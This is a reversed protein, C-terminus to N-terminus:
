HGLERTATAIQEAYSEAEVREILQQRPMFRQGTMPNRKLDEAYGCELNHISKALLLLL